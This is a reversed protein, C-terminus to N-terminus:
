ELTFRRTIVQGELMGKLLYSGPSLEYPPMLLRRGQGEFALVRKGSLDVVEWQTSQSSSEAGTIELWIPQGVKAPQPYLKLGVCPATLSGLSEELSLPTNSVQYSPIGRGNGLDYIGALLGQSSLLEYTNITSTDESQSSWSYPPGVVSLDFSKFTSDIVQCVLVSQSTTSGPLRLTGARNIRRSQKLRDTIRYYYTYNIPFTIRVEAIAQNIITYNLRSQNYVLPFQLIPSSGPQEVSHLEIPGSTTISGFGLTDFLGNVYLNSGSLRYALTGYNNAPNVSAVSFHTANPFLSRIRATGQAAPIVQSTDWSNVPTLNSWNLTLNNGPSGILTTLPAEDAERYIVRRGEQLFNAATISQALAEGALALGLLSLLIKKM